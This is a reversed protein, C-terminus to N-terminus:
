SKTESERSFYDIMERPIDHFNLILL